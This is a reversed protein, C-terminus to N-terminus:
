LTGTRSQTVAVCVLSVCLVHARQRCLPSPCATPSVGYARTITVPTPLIPTSCGDRLCVYLVWDDGFSGALQALSHPATTLLVQPGTTLELSLQM